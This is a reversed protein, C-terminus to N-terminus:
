VHESLVSEADRSYVADPDHEPVDRETRQEWVLLHAWRPAGSASSWSNGQNDYGYLSEQASSPKEISGLLYGVVLLSIALLTKM